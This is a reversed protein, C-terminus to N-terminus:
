HETEDKKITFFFPDKPDAEVVEQPVAQPGQLFVNAGFKAHMRSLKEMRASTLEDFFASYTPTQKLADIKNRHAQLTATHAAAIDPDQMLADFEAQLQPLMRQISIDTDANNNMRFWYNLGQDRDVHNVRGRDRKVLFSEASRVAYHNLQVLDYGYSDMTSRWANRYMKKPLPKGSGNVWRIQEWLQPKLGKPRHVGLKKFLGSNRYLTKFGWAQHPKRALEPACTTFQSTVFDPTFDHQDGNGFLRWTMAILNVDGLAELLAGLTGDGCKINIFEDVDMCVVWEAQAIVPESDAAALAAHQPKMTTSRYPNDRHQLIGKEQLVDLLTDTGDTCDNSYVLFDDIGIARHYAIWELIFPGENKMTTVIARRGNTKVDQKLAPPLAPKTEFHRELLEILPPHTILSSKPVIRSIAGTRHRLAMCRYFPQMQDPDPAAGGIRIARWMSDGALTGPAVCWRRRARPADFQVCAHDSFAPNNGDRIRWPYCHRGIMTVYGTPSAAARDFVSPGPADSLLDHVDFNAVARAAGLYRARAWEYLIVEAFPAHWPDPPPVEMRDKGPAEPVSYPHTEAPVGDRGMPHDASVVLLACDLGGASLEAGLDRAFEPDTGPANRDLIVAGNLGHTKHHYHLWDLVLSAPEGNRLALAVNRGAFRGHEPPSPQITVAGGDFLMDLPGSWRVSVMPSGGLTRQAVIEARPGAAIAHLPTDHTFFLDAQGPATLVADLLTVAGTQVKQLSCLSLAGSSTPETM